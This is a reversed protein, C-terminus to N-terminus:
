KKIKSQLAFYGKTEFVVQMLAANADFYNFMKIIISSPLPNDKLGEPLLTIFEMLISEVDRTIEELTQDLLDFKDQYHLYFTGRNLNAKTMLDKVSLAEFGKEEILSILAARIASKTRLIRRDDTSSM